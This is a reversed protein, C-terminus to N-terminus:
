YAGSETVSKTQIGWRIEFGFVLLITKEYITESVPRCRRLTFIFQNNLWIIICITEKNYAKEKTFCRTALERMNTFKKKESSRGIM